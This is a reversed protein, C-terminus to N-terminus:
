PTALERCRDPMVFVKAAVISNLRDSSYWCDLADRDPASGTEAILSMFALTKTVSRKEPAGARETIASIARDYIWVAELFEHQELLHKAMDVHTRHNFASVDINAGLFKEIDTECRDIM